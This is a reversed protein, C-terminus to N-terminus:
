KKGRRTVAREGRPAVAREVGPSRLPEAFGAAILSEAEAKDIDQESGAQRQCNPGCM